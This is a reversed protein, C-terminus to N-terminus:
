VSKDMMGFNAIIENNAELMYKKLETLEEPTMDHDAAWQDILISIVGAFVSENKIEKIVDYVQTFIMFGKALALDFDTFM